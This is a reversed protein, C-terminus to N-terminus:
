NISGHQASSVVPFLFIKGAVPETGMCVLTAIVTCACSCELDPEPLQFFIWETLKLVLMKFSCNLQDETIALVLVLVPTVFAPVSKFM